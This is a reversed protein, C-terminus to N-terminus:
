HLRYSMSAPDRTNLKGPVTSMPRYPKVVAPSLEARVQASVRGQEINQKTRLDSLMNRHSQMLRQAGNLWHEKHEDRGRQIRKQLAELERAQTRKMQLEKTAYGLQLENEIKAKEWAELQDAKLKTAQADAYKSQKALTEQVRRFNLLERSFKQRMPARQRLDEQFRAFEIAHRQRTQEEIDGAQREFDEMNRSWATNFEMAEMMHAEEVGSREAEQRNAVADHLRAEEEVQMAAYVEKVSAATPYDGAAERRKRYDDLISLLTVVVYHRPVPMDGGPPPAGQRAALKFTTKSLSSEVLARFAEFGFSGEGNADANVVAEGAERETRGSSRLVAAMDPADIYGARERDLLAFIVQYDEFRSSEAM